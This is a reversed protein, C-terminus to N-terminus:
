PSVGNANLANVTLSGNTLDLRATLIPGTPRGPQLYRRSQRSPASLPQFSAPLTVDASSSPGSFQVTLSVRASPPVNLTVNGSTSHADLTTHADGPPLTLNLDGSTSRVSLQPTGHQPLTARLQGKDSVFNLRELSLTRLDLDSDDAPRQLMLTLPLRQPLSLTLTGSLSSQGGLQIILPWERLRRSLKLALSSPPDRYVAGFATGSLLPARQLRLEDEHSASLQAHLSGSGSGSLQLSHSLQPSLTLTLHRVGTLPHQVHSSQIKLGGLDSRQVSTVFLAGLVVLAGLTVSM